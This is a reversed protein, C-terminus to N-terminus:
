ECHAATVVWNANILSGGCGDLNVLYPFNDIPTEIGCSIRAMESRVFSATNLNRTKGASYKSKVTSIM